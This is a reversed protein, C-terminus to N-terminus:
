CHSNKWQFRGVLMVFTALICHLFIPITGGFWRAEPHLHMRLSYRVVMSLFYVVGFIMIGKGWKRHPETWFGIGRAYDRVIRGCLAIIVFQFFLLVPYPLLGSQWENM